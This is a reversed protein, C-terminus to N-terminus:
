DINRHRVLINQVTGLPKKDIRQLLAEALYVSRHQGGTCGIAVTVYSRQETQYSPLWKRLYNEIDNLLEASRNDNQIFQQVPLDKGTLARLSKDYYPNTLCRADFVLDADNPLGTKFGFTELVLTLKAYKEEVTELVWRRLTTTLLDTTDILDAMPRIDSIAEREAQVCEQVTANESLRSSMPHRRRTESYRTVLADDDADLFIIRTDIQQHRLETVITPVEVI